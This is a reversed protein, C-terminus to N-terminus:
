ATLANQKKDGDWGGRFVLKGRLHLFLFLTLIVLFFLVKQSLPPSLSICITNLMQQLQQVQLFFLKV